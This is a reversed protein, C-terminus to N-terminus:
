EWSVLCVNVERGAQSNHMNILLVNSRNRIRPDLFKESVGMGYVVNDSCGAWKFGDQTEGSDSKDCSCGNIKGESCAQTITYTLAASSLAYLYSAERLGQFTMKNAPLVGFVKGDACGVTTLYNAL